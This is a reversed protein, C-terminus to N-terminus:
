MRIRYLMRHLEGYPHSAHFKLDRYVAQECALYFLSVVELYCTVQDM